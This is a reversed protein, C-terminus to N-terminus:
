EEIPALQELEARIATLVQAEDHSPDLDACATRCARELARLRVLEALIASLADGAGHRDPENPQVISAAVILAHPVRM